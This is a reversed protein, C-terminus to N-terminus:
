VTEITLVFFFSVFIFVVVVVVVVFFCCFFCFSVLSFGWHSRVTSKSARQVRIREVRQQAPLGVAAVVGDGVDGFWRIVALVNVAGVGCSGADGHCRGGHDGHGHGSVGGEGVAGEGQGAHGRGRM